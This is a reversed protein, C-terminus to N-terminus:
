YPQYLEKKKLNSFILLFIPKWASFKFNL